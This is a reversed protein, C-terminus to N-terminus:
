NCRETYKKRMVESLGQAYRETFTNETDSQISAM